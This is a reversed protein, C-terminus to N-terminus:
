YTMSAANIIGIALSATALTIAAAINGEEIHSSIGSLAVDIAKFVVLQVVLAIVAWVAMDLLSVSSIIASALPVTFGLVAGGLSISAAVNGKRILSAEHHSTIAMYLAVFVAQAILAAV